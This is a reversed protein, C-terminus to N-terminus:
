FLIKKTQKDSNKITPTGEKRKFTIQIRWIGFISSRQLPDKKIALRRDCLKIQIFLNSYLLLSVASRFLAMNRPNVDYLDPFRGHPNGRCGHLSRYYNNARGYIVLTHRNDRHVTATCTWRHFKQWSWKTTMRATHYSRTRFRLSDDRDTLCVSGHNLWRRRSACVEDWAQGPLCKM